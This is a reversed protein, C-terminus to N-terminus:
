TTFVIAWYRVVRGSGDTLNHMLDINATSSLDVKSSDKFTDYVAYSAWDVNNLFMEVVNEKDLDDPQRFVYTEPNYEDLITIRKGGVQKYYVRYTASPLSINYRGDIGIVTSFTNSGDDFYVTTGIALPFIGSANLVYMPTKATSPFTIEVVIKGTSDVPDFSKNLNVSQFSKGANFSVRYELGADADATLMAHPINFVGFTSLNLIKTKYLM